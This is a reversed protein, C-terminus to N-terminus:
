ADVGLGGTAALLERGASLLGGVSVVITTFPPGEASMRLDARFAPKLILIAFPVVCKQLVSAGIPVCKTDSDQMFSCCTV